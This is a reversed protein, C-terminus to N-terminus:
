TDPRSQFTALTIFPPLYVFLSFYSSFYSPLHSHHRPHLSLLILPHLLPLSTFVVSLSPARNLSVAYSVSPSRGCVGDEEDEIKRREEM